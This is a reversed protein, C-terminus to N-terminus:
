FYLTKIKQYTDLLKFRTKNTAPLFIFVPLFRYQLSLCSNFTCYICKLLPFVSIYINRFNVFYCICFFIEGLIVGGVNEFSNSPYIFIIIFLIVNGFFRAFDCITVVSCSLSTKKEKTIRCACILKEKKIIIMKSKDVSWNILLFVSSNKDVDFFVILIVRSRTQHSRM